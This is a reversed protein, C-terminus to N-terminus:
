SAKEQKKVFAFVRLDNEALAGMCAPCVLPIEGTVVVPEFDDGCRNCRLVSM